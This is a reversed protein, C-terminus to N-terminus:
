GLRRAIQAMVDPHQWYYKANEALAAWRQCEQELMAIHATCATVDGPQHKDNQDPYQLLRRRELCLEAQRLALRRLAMLQEASLRTLGPDALAAGQDGQLLPLLQELSTRSDAEGIEADALADEKDILM